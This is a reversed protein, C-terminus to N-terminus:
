LRDAREQRSRCNGTASVFRDDFTQEHTRSKIQYKSLLFLPATKTFYSILDLFLLSFYPFAGSYSGFSPSPPLLIFIM